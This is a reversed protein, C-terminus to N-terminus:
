EIVYKHYNRIFEIVTGKRKYTNYYRKWYNAYGSISDPLPKPVRFYHVRTMAISLALNWELYEFKFFDIGTSDQIKVPLTPKYTFMWNVHSNFTLREMQTIGRAPGGGLQKIYEGLGSEQAITGIILNSAHPSSLEIDLLVRNVLNRLQYRDM